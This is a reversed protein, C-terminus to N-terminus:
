EKIVAKSDAMIDVSEGNIDNREPAHNGPVIKIDFDPLVLLCKNEEGRERERLDKKSIKRTQKEKVGCFSIMYDDLSKM